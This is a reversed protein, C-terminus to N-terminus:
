DLRIAVEIAQGPAVATLTILANRDSEGPPVGDLEFAFRKLGSPAGDIPEPVPLAWQPTPGEAFLDTGAPGALDVVIRARPSGDERRVMRIALPGSEGLGVKRPVQAEAATLADNRSTAGKPLTLEAVAGAPVCQKECVGYDLKLRLVVPERADQPVVRLPFIVDSAYGISTNGEERLREPAPWLVEVGKVNRSGKFDFQPPVGADGPYRWYTHWGPKLRLEVGARQASDASPTGAILRAASRVDGDWPSADDAAASSVVFVAACAALSFRLPIIGKM